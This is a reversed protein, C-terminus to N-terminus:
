GRYAKQHDFISSYGILSMKVWYPYFGASNRTTFGLGRDMTVANWHLLTGMRILLGGCIRSVELAVLCESFGQYMIKEWALNEQVYAVKRGRKTLAVLTLNAYLWSSVSFKGGHIMCLPYAFSYGVYRHHMRFPLSFPRIYITHRWSLYGDLLEKALVDGGHREFGHGKQAAGNRAVCPRM